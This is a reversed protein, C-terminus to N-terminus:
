ISNFSIVDVEILCQAIDIDLDGLLRSVNSGHAQEAFKLFESRCSAV